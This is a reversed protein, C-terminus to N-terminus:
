IPGIGPKQSVTWVLIEADLGLLGDRHLKDLNRYCSTVLLIEVEGQISNIEIREKLINIEGILWGEEGRRTFKGHGEM